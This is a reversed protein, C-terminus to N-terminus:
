FRLGGNADIFQGTLWRADDSALFAVVAGRSHLEEAAARGIDRSV